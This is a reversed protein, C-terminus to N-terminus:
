KTGVKIIKLLNVSTKRWWVEDSAPLNELAHMLVPVALKYKGTQYLCDGYMAMAVHSKQRYSESLEHLPLLDGKIKKNKHLKAQMTSDAKHYPQVTSAIMTALWDSKRAYEKIVPIAKDCQGAQYLQKGKRALAEVEPQTVLGLTRVKEAAGEAKFFLNQEKGVEALATSSSLLCAVAIIKKM